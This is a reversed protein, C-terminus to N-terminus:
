KKKIQKEDTPANENKPPKNMDKTIFMDLGVMGLFILVCFIILVIKIMVKEETINYNHEIFRLYSKIGM